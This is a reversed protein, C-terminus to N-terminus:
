NPICFEISVGFDVRLKVRGTFAPRLRGPDRHQRNCKLGTIGPDAAGVTQIVRDLEFDTQDINSLDINGSNCHNPHTNEIVM